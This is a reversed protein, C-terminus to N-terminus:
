PPYPEMIDSALCYPNYKNRHFIGLVLLLGTDVLARAVISLLVGYGFNFFQNPYEDFRDRLFNYDILYKWYHQAAIGEM